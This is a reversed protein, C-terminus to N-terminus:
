YTFVEVVIPNGAIDSLDAFCHRLVSYNDDYAKQPDDGRLFVRVESNGNTTIFIRGSRILAVWAPERQGEPFMDTVPSHPSGGPGIIMELAILLLESYRDLLAEASSDYQGASLATTLREGSTTITDPDVIEFYSARVMEVTCARREVGCLLLRPTIKSYTTCFLM